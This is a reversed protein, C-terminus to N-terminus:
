AAEVELKKDARIPLCEQVIIEVLNRMEANTTPYDYEKMVKRVASTLTEDIQKRAPTWSPHVTAAESETDEGSAEKRLVRLTEKLSHESKEFEELFRNQPYQAIKRIRSAWAKGITFGQSDYWAGYKEDGEHGGFVARADAMAKALEMYYNASAIVKAENAHITKAARVLTKRDDASKEPFPLEPAAKTIKATTERAITQTV